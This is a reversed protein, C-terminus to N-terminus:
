RQIRDIAAQLLARIQKWRRSRINRQYNHRSETVLVQELAFMVDIKYSQLVRFLLQNSVSQGVEEDDFGAVFRRWSRPPVRFLRLVVQTRYCITQKDLVYNGFFGVDKLLQCQKSSLQPLIYSDLRVEDWRNEALIFSVMNLSCCIIEIIEMHFASKQGRQLSDILPSGTDRLDMNLKVDKTLM